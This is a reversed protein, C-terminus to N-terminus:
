CCREEWHKDLCGHAVREDCQTVAHCMKMVCIQGLSGVHTHPFPHTAHRKQDERRAQRLLTYCRQLNAMFIANDQKTYKEASFRTTLPTLSGGNSELVRLPLMFGGLLGVNMSTASCEKLGLSIENRCSFHPLRVQSTM